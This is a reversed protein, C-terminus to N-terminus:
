SVTVTSNKIIISVSILRDITAMVLRGIKEWYNPIADCMVGQSSVILLYIFKYRAVFDIRLQILPLFLKM